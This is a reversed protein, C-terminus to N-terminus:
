YERSYALWSYVEWDDQLLDYVRLKYQPRIYTDRLIVIDNDKVVAYMDKLWQMRRMRLGRRIDTLAESGSM